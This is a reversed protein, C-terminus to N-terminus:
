RKVLNARMERDNVYEYFLSKLYRRVTQAGVRCVPCGTQSCAELLEHHSFAKPTKESNKM